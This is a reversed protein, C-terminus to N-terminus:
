IGTTVRDALRDIDFRPPVRGRRGLFCAVCGSECVAFPQWAGDNRLGPKIAIVYRRHNRQLCGKRQHSTNAVLRSPRHRRVSNSLLLGQYGVLSPSAAIRQKFSVAQMKVQLRGPPVQVLRYPQCAVKWARENDEVM